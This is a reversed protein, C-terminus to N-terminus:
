PPRGQLSSFSATSSMETDQSLSTTSGTNRIVADEKVMKEGEEEEEENKMDEMFSNSTAAGALASKKQFASLGEQTPTSGTSDARVYQSFALDSAQGRGQNLLSPRQVAYNRPATPNSRGYHM